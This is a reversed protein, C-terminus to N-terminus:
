SENQLAWTTGSGVQGAYVVQGEANQDMGATIDDQGALWTSGSEINQYEWTTTM